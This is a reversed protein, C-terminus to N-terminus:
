VPICRATVITSRTRFDGFNRLPSPVGLDDDRARPRHPAGIPFIFANCQGITHTEQGSHSRNWVAFGHSAM